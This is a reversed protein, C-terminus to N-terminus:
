LIRPAALVRELRTRALVAAGQDVYANAIAASRKRDTDIIGIDIFGEKTAKLMTRAGLM